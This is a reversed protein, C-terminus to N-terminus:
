AAVNESRVGAPWAPGHIMVFWTATAYILLDGRFQGSTAHVLLALGISLLLLAGGVRLTRRFLFLSAGTAEIIALLGIHPNAHGAAPVLAEIATRASFLLLTLGLTLHFAFFSRRLTPSAM